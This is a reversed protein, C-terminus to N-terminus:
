KGLVMRRLQVMRYRLADRPTPNTFYSAHADDNAILDKAYDDHRLRNVAEVMARPAIQYLRRNLSMLSDFRGVTTKHQVVIPGADIAAVILHISVGIEEEGKLYAWFPAVCGRYKPLLSGHRNLAGIRPISLIDKRLISNAQNIILDPKIQRLEALLEPSNVGSVTMVPIGLRVCNGRLSWPNRRALWETSNMLKMGLTLLLSQFLFWPSSMLVIAILYSLPSQSRSHVAAGRVIAVGVVEDRLERIVATLYPNYLAPEENATVFLRLVGARERTSRSAAAGTVQNPPNAVAPADSAHRM